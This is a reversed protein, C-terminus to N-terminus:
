RTITDDTMSTFHIHQYIKLLQLSKISAILLNCQQEKPKKKQARNRRSKKKEGLVPNSSIFSIHYIVFTANPYSHIQIM